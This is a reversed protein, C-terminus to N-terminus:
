ELLHFYIDAVLHIIVMLLGIWILLSSLRQLDGFSNLNKKIENINDLNVNIDNNLNDM